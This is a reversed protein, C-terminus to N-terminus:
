VGEAQVLVHQPQDTPIDLNVAQVPQGRHYEGLPQVGQGDKQRVHHDDPGDQANDGLFCLGFGKACADGVETGDQDEVDRENAQGDAVPKPLMQGGESVCEQSIGVEQHWRDQVWEHVTPFGLLDAPPDEDQEAPSTGLLLDLGLTAIGWHWEGGEKGGQVPQEHAIDDGPSFWEHEKVAWSFGTVEEAICSKGRWPAISLPLECQEVEWKPIGWNESLRCSPLAPTAM